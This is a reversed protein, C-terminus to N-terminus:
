LRVAGERGAYPIKAAQLYARPRYPRRPVHVPRKAAEAEEAWVDALSRTLNLHSTCPQGIGNTEIGVAAYHEKQGSLTTLNM